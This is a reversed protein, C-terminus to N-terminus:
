TFPSKSFLTYNKSSFYITPSTFGTNLGHVCLHRTPAPLQIMLSSEWGLLPVDGMLIIVERVVVMVMVAETGIIAVAEGM